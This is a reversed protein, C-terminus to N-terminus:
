RADSVGGPVHLVSKAAVDNHKAVLAGRGVAFGEAFSNAAQIEAFDDAHARPTAFNPKGEAIEQSILSDGGGGFDADVAGIAFPKDLAVTYIGVDHHVIQRVGGERATVRAFRTM